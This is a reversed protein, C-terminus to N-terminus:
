ASHSEAAVEEWATPPVARSLCEALCTALPHGPDTDLCRDLACWALAGHGAQWACFATIVAAEPVQPEPARRLLRSWTRLYAEVTAQSVAFLVADRVDVRLVARLLRAAEEDDPESGDATCRGL